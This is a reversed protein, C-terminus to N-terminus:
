LLKLRKPTPNTEVLKELVEKYFPERSCKGVAGLGLIKKALTTDATNELYKPVFQDNIFGCDITVCNELRSDIYEQTKEWADIYVPKEEKRYKVLNYDIIKTLKEHEEVIKADDIADKKGKMKCLLYMYTGVNQNYTDQGNLEVIKKYLDYLEEQKDAKTGWYRFASYGKLNLVKPEEQFYQIRQDFLELTRDQLQAKEEQDETSEVLNEYVKIGNIYLGKRLDPHNELLWDLPAKAEAYNKERNYDSFLVYKEMTEQDMKPAQAQGLTSFGILTMFLALIRKM